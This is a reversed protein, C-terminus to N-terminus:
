KPARIKWYRQKCPVRLLFSSGHYLVSCDPNPLHTLCLTHLRDAANTAIQEVSEKSQCKRVPNYNSDVYARHWNTMYSMRDGNPANTGRWRGRESLWKWYGAYDTGPYRECHLPGSALDLPRTDRWGRYSDSYCNDRYKWPLVHRSRKRQCRVHRSRLHPRIARWLRVRQNNRGGSTFYLSSGLPLYGMQSALILM